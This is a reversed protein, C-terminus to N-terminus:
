RWFGRIGAQPSVKLKGGVKFGGKKFLPKKLRKGLKELADERRKKKEYKSIDVLEEEYMDIIDQATVKESRIGQGMIM